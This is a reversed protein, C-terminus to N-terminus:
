LPRHVAAHGHGAQHDEGGRTTQGAAAARGHVGHGHRRRRNGAAAQLPRDTDRSARRHSSRRDHRCCRTSSIRSLQGGARRAELLEEIEARLQLDDGCAEDLYAAREAPDQLEAAANFIQGNDPQKANM